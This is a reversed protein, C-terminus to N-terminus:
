KQTPLHLMRVEQSPKVAKWGSNGSKRYVRYGATGKVQKWSFIIKNKGVIKISSMATAAVTVAAQVEAVSILEPVTAPAATALMFGTLIGCLAKKWNRKM